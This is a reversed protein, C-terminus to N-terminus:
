ASDTLMTELKAFDALALREMTAWAHDISQYRRLGYLHGQCLLAQKRAADNPFATTAVWRDFAAFEATMARKGEKELERTDDPADTM